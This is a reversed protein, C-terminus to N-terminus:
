NKATNQLILDVLEKEEQNRPTFNRALRSLTEPSITGKFASDRLHLGFSIVLNLLENQRIPTDKLLIFRKEISEKDEFPKYRLKVFALEEAGISSTAQVFHTEVTSAKGREIEYVATVEHGYGMEGGDKLDDIFDQSKLLRNEYGILRYSSVLNPNFEVNLKVDRAINLLNGVDNVLVKKSQATSNIYFHNGDGKDALTELTANKYNGMGFGLATLYIGHGRQQEIYKELDGPSNIGVNFDGDTALIIRNNLEPNFNRKALKYATEIGGIGNTSGGSTLQDLAEIIISKNTCLTPELVIGSAGAYTVIAVRDDARLTQVFEKMGQVLLPLKNSSSMSGSVDILFVFNHSKRPLNKPLDKAKLHIKLLEHDKNWSCDLREMSVAILDDSDMQNPNTKFSNIMEELKVADRSVPLNNQLQNKIYSWSAQDIDIGFTSHPNVNPSLFDNEYIPLFADYNKAPTLPKYEEKIRSSNSRPESLKRQNYSKTEIQIVGGTVDGYNAPIGGTIVTVNDIAGKPVANANRVRMGDIYYAVDDARSGRFHLNSSEEILNVGGVTSAMGDATRMPLRAVDEKMITSAMASVNYFNTMPSIAFCTVMQIEQLQMTSNSSYVFQDISNNYQEGVLATSNANITNKSKVQLFTSDVFFVSSLLQNEQIFISATYTKSLDDNQIWVTIEGVPLNRLFLTGSKSTVGEACFSDKILQIQLGELTRYSKSEFCKLYAGGTQANSIFGQFLFFFLLLRKM